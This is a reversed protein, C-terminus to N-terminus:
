KRKPVEPIDPIASQNLGGPSRVVGRGTGGILSIKQLRPDIMFQFGGIDMVFVSGSKGKGSAISKAKQRDTRLPKAKQATKRRSVRTKKM